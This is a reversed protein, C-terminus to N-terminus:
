VKNQPAAINIGFAALGGIIFILDAYTGFAHFQPVWVDALGIGVAIAAGIHAWLNNTLAEKM